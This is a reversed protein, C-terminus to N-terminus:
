GSGAGDERAARSGAWERLLRQVNPFGIEGAPPLEDRPFWRVEAADDGAEAEGGTVTAEWYMNLTTAAEEGTGYRDLLADVFRGPEVELGTEERLERRLGDLPAEGEELFGGPVDWKGGYPDHARRVLLVRGELGLVIAGVTTESWSYARFRCSPCEVRTESHELETSCKPCYKWSEVRAV